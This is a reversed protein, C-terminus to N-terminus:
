RRSSIGRRGARVKPFRSLQRLGWRRGPEVRPEPAHWAGVTGAGGTSEVKKNREDDVDQKLFRPLSIGDAYGFCEVYWTSDGKPKIGVNMTEGTETGMWLLHGPEPRATDLGPDIAIDAFGAVQDQLVGWAAELVKPDNHALIVMADADPKLHDDIGPPRAAYGWGVTPNDRGYVSGGQFVPDDPQRDDPIGLTAYGAKSLAIMRFLFDPDQAGDIQEQASTPKFEGAIWRLAAAAAEVDTRLKILLHLAHARGHHDLINGQANKLLDGATPDKPDLGDINPGDILEKLDM